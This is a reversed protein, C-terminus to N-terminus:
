RLLAALANEDLAQADLAVDIRVARDAVRAALIRQEDAIQMALVPHRANALEIGLEVLAIRERRQTEILTRLEDM